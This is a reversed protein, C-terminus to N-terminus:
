LIGMTSYPSVILSVIHNLPTGGGKDVHRWPRTAVPHMFVGSGFQIRGIRLLAGSLGASQAYRNEPGTAPAGEM